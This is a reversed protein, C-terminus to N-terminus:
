KRKKGINVIHGFVYIIFSSMISVSFMLLYVTYLHNTLTFFVILGGVLLITLIIYLPNKVKVKDKITHLFDILLFVYITSFLIELVTTNEYQMFILFMLFLLLEKTNISAFLNKNLYPFYKNRKYGKNEIIGSRYYMLKIFYIIWPIFTLYKLVKGIM